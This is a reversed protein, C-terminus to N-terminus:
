SAKAALHDHGPLEASWRSRDLAVVNAGRARREAEKWAQLGRRLYEPNLSLLECINTFSYPWSRDDALFWLETEEFLQRAKEKEASCNKQFCDIADQLVAVVLRYEPEKPCRKKVTAFFQSPMLADPQFLNGDSTDRM